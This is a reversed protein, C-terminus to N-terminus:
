EQIEPSAQCDKSGRRDKQARQGRVGQTGMTGMMELYQLTTVQTGWTVLVGQFVLCLDSTM